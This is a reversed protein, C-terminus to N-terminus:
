LDLDIAYIGFGRSTIWAHENNPEIMITVQRVNGASFYDYGSFGWSEGGNVSKRINGFFDVSLLLKDSCGVSIVGLPSVDKLTWTAGADTSAYVGQDTAAWITGSCETIKPVNSVPLDVHEWSLGNDVSRYMGMASDMSNHDIGGYYSGFLVVGEEQESFHITHVSHSNQPIGESSLTWTLGGDDTRYVLGSEDEWQGSGVSGVLVTDENWPSLGIGHFHYQQEEPIMSTWDRGYTVSKYVRKDSVLWIEGPVEPRDEFTMVYHFYTDMLSWTQGWDTSMYGGMECQTGAFILGPCSPIMGLAIIDYDVFDARNFSWSDDELTAVGSLDGIMIRGDALGLSGLPEYFEEHELQEVSNQDGRFIGETTVAVFGTNTATISWLEGALEHLEYTWAAGGNESVHITSSTSSTSAAWLTDGTSTEHLALGNSAMSAQSPYLIQTWTDGDTSKYVTGGKELSYLATSSALLQWEYNKAGSELLPGHDTHPPAPPGGVVTRSEFNSMDTTSLVQGEMGNIVFLEGQFWAMSQVRMLEFQQMLATWTEGGDESYSIRDNSVAVWDPNEPHVTILSFIHSSMPSVDRWSEGGDESKYLGNMQSGAWIVDTEVPHQTFRTIWGGPPAGVESWNSTSLEPAATTQPCTFPNEDSPESGPESSPETGPETSPETTPEAGPEDTVGSGKGKKGIVTSFGENEGGCALIIWLM